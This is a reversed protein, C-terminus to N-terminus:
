RPIAEHGLESLSSRSQVTGGDIWSVDGFAGEENQFVKSPESYPEEGEWRASDM